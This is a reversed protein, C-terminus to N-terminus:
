TKIECNFERMSMKNRKNIILTLSFNRINVRMTKKCM